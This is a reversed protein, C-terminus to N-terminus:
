VKIIREARITKCHKLLNYYTGVALYVTHFKDIKFSNICRM